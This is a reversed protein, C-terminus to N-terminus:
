SNSKNTNPEKLIDYLDKVRQAAKIITYIQEEPSKYTADVATCLTNIAKYMAKDYDHKKM